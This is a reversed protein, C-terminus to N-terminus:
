RWCAQQLESVTYALFYGRWSYKLECKLMGEGTLTRCLIQIDFEQLYGQKRPTLLGAPKSQTNKVM